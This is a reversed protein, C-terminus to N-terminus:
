PCCTERELVKNPFIMLFIHSGVSGLVPGLCCAEGSGGKVKSHINQRGEENGSAAGLISGQSLFTINLSEPYYIHSFVTLAGIYVKLVQYTPASIQEDQPQGHCAEYTGKSVLGAM